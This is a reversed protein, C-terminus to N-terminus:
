SMHLRTPVVGEYVLEHAYIHMCMLMLESCSIISIVAIVSYIMLGICMYISNM